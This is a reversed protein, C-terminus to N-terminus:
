PFIQVEHEPLRGSPKNKSDAVSEKSAQFQAELVAVKAQKLIKSVDYKNESDIVQLIQVYYAQVEQQTIMNDRLLIGGGRYLEEDEM